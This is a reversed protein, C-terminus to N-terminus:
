RRTTETNSIAAAKEKTDITVAWKEWIGVLPGSAESSFRACAVQVRPPRNKNCPMQRSRPLCRCNSDLHSATNPIMRIALDVFFNDGLYNFYNQGIDEIYKKRVRSLTLFSLFFSLFYNMVKNYPNETLIKRKVRCLNAKGKHAM